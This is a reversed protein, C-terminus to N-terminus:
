ACKLRCAGVACCATCPRMLVASSISCGMCSPSWYRLSSAHMCAHRIAAADTSRPRSAPRMASASSAPFALTCANGCAEPNFICILPLLLMDRKTALKQLLAQSLTAGECQGLTDVTSWSFQIQPIRGLRACTMGCQGYGKSGGGRRGAQTPQVVHVSGAGVASVASVDASAPQEIRVGM